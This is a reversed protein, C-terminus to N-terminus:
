PLSQYNQLKADLKSLIEEFQPFTLNKNDVNTLILIILNGHQQLYRYSRVPAEEIQVDWYEFRFVDDLNAPSFNSDQVSQWAQTFYRQEWEPYMETATDIDPYITITHSINIGFPPKEYPSFSTAHSIIAGPEVPFNGGLRNWGFPVEDISLMLNYPFEPPSNIAISCGSLMNLNYILTFFFLPLTISKIKM